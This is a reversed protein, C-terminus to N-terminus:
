EREFIIEKFSGFGDARLKYTKNQDPFDILLETQREGVSMMKEMFEIFNIAIEEEGSTPRYGRAVKYLLKYLTFDIELRINSNYGQDNKLFAISISTKFYYLIDGQNQIFASSEIPNAQPSFRQALKYHDELQNILIFGKKPQGKWNFMISKFVSYFDRIKQKNGKNFHFLDIMFENFIPDGLSDDSYVNSLEKNTLLACRLLSTFRYKFMQDLPDTENLSSKELWEIALSNHVTQEHILSWNNNLRLDILLEDVKSSRTNIPDLNSIAKLLDSREASSFLINPTIQDLMRLDENIDNGILIDAIFSLFARTSIVLKNKVIAQIVLYILQDQVDPSQLFEFNEHLYSKEDESVDKRYSLYFPNREDEAFVKSLLEKYFSSTPGNVTLEYSHNDSLNFLVTNQEENAYWPVIKDEFVGSEEVFRKLNQFNEGNDSNIFNHLVGLNIAVITHKNNIYSKDDSHAALVKELTQLASLEPSFSETADNHITFNSILDQHESKLYALLHSKGDGVGGSLLILKPPIENKLYTVLKNQIPRDIHLYRKFESLKNASEIAEKSSDKLKSLQEKLTFTTSTHHNVIQAEELGVGAATEDVVKKSDSNNENESFEKNSLTGKNREEIAKIIEDMTPSSSKPQPERYPKITGDYTVYTEYYWSAVKYLQKHLELADLLSMENTHTAKNGTRRVQDLAIKIEPRIYDQTSLYFIMDNLSLNYGEQIDEIKFVNKLLFEVSIRAKTGATAPDSFIYHEMQNAAKAAEPCDKELFSFISDNNYM